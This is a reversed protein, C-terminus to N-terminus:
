KPGNLNTSVHDLWSAVIDEHKKKTQKKVDQAKHFEGGGGKLMQMKLFPAASAPKMAPSLGSVGSFIWFLSM